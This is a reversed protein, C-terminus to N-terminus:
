PIKIFPFQKKFYLIGFFIFELAQMIDENNGEMTMASDFHIRQEKERFHKTFFTHHNSTIKDIKCPVMEIVAKITLQYVLFDWM